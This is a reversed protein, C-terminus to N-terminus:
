KASDAPATATSDITPTVTSDTTPAATTSDSVLTTDTLTSDSNTKETSGNGCSAAFAGLALVFLLKKMKLYHKLTSTIRTLVVLVFFTVWSFM